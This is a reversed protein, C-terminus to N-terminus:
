KAKIEQTRAKLTDLEAKIAKVEESAKLENESLRTREEELAKIRGLREMTDDECEKMGMQLSLKDKERHSRQEAIESEEIEFQQLRKTYTLLQPKLKNVASELLECERTLTTLNDKLGKLEASEM